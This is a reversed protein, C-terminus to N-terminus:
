RKRMAHLAPSREPASEDPREGAARQRRRAEVAESPDVVTTDILGATQGLRSAIERALRDARRLLAHSESHGLSSAPTRLLAL